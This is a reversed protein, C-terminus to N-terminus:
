TALDELEVDNQGVRGRGRGRTKRRADACLREANWASQRADARLWSSGVRLGSARTQGRVQHRSHDAVACADAGPTFMAPVTGMTGRSLARPARATPLSALYRAGSATSVVRKKMHPNRVQRLSMMM